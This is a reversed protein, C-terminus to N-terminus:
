LCYIIIYMVHIWIFCGYYLTHTLDLKILFHCSQRSVQKSVISMAGKSHGKLRIEFIPYMPNGTKYSWEIDTYSISQLMM